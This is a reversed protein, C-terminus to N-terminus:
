GGKKKGQVMAKFKARAALQAPSPKSKKGSAKKAM